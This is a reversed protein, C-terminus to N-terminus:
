PEGGASKSSGVLTMEAPRYQRVKLLEAPLVARDAYTIKGARLMKLALARNYSSWPSGKRRPTFRM